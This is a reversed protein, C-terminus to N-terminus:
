VREWCSARGIEGCELIIKRSKTSFNPSNITNRFLDGNVYPFVKLFAPAHNDAETNLKLFLRDLFAAVDSGNSKTHQALTDTFMGDVPFIHTDEAFFCFLLRSLFINLNHGGDDYISPNEHVLIDYLKAM